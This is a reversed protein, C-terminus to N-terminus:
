HWSLPLTLAPRWTANRREWSMSGHQDERRLLALDRELRNNMKNYFIASTIRPLPTLVCTLGAEERWFDFAPHGASGAKAWVVADLAPGLRGQLLEASIM